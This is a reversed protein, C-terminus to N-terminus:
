MALFALAMGAALTAAVNIAITSAASASSPAPSGTPSTVAPMEETPSSVAPPMAPAAAPAAGKKHRPKTATAAAVTVELKMGAACHGPVGCIFYHKGPADLKVTTSGGTYSALANAPSCADYSAKPVEVVDHSSPYTFLISDGQSFKQSVSWANYNGTTDWAGNGGVPHVAAAAVQALAAVAVVALLAAQQKKTVM